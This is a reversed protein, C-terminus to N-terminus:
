GLSHSNFLRGKIMNVIMLDNKDLSKTLFILLIYTLTFLIGLLILTLFNITILNKLILAPIITIICSFFVRIMKRRIPIIKLYYYAQSFMLISYIILTISTAIAAGTIGLPNEIFWIKKMPILFLNLVIAIILILFTNFFRLKSKKIMGLLNLSIESQALLFIGIALFILATAGQLYTPGFLLNIVVEPFFLFIFLAPLNIIFIWKGVQKSLEKITKINNKAYERNIIPFFLQNFLQPTLTLLLAIPLAANYIGVENATKLYGILFTDTWGFIFIIVSSFLLPLSYKFLEKTIKKDKSEKSDIFFKFLYKKCFLYSLVLSVLFGMIFSFSISKLYDIGICILLILILLKIIPEIIQGILIIPPIKEFARITALFVQSLAYLPITISFLQLFIILKPNHFISVALFEASLFMIIGAIISTITITILSVKFIKKINKKNKTGRYYSIYRVIGEFFGASAFMAFLGFIMLAISFFGYVEPAYQRAIIIRYVYTLLKCIILGIFLFISTKAVIKLNHNLEYNEEIM